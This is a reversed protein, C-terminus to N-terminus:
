KVYGAGSPLVEEAQLTVQDRTVVRQMWRWSGKTQLKLGTHSRSLSTGPGHSAMSVQSCHFCCFVYKIALVFPFYPFQQSITDVATLGFQVNNESTLTCALLLLYAVSTIACKIFQPFTVQLAQPCEPVM